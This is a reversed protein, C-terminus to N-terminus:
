DERRAGDGGQGHRTEATVVRGALRALLRLDPGVQRFDRGEERLRGVTEQHVNFLDAPPMREKAHVRRVRM